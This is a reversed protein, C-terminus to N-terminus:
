IRSVGTANFHLVLSTDPKNSQNRTRYCHLRQVATHRCNQKYYIFFAANLYSNRLQWVVEVLHLPLRTFSSRNDSM